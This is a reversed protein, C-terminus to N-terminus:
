VLNGPRLKTMNTTKNVSTGPRIMIFKIIDFKIIFFPNLSM